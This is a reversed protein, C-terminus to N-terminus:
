ARYAPFFNTAALQEESKGTSTARTSVLLDYKRRDLVARALYFPLQERSFSQKFRALGDDPRLGGGLHLRRAGTDCGHRIVGDLLLTNAGDRAAAPLSGALHYHILQGWRMFLAAAVVESRVDLIEAILLRKGLGRQLQRYYEDGFLYRASAGLRQMTREYLERFPAGRELDTPDTARVSVSLGCKQAKRVATRTRGESRRWYGDYGDALSVIVTDNHHIREVFADAAFLREHGPFLASVRQFEAVAGGDAAAARFARRFEVWVDVPVDAPAWTGAYGYPSALDTLEGSLGARAVLEADVARRLYPYLIPGDSWVALEWSHGCAEEAAGLEPSFYVDPWPLDALKAEALTLFRLKATSVERHLTAARAIVM